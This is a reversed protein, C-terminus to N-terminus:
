PHSAWAHVESSTVDLHPVIGYKEGSKRLIPLMLLTLLFTGVVNIAITTEMNAKKSWSLSGGLLAVGANELLADLRDLKEARKAFAKVSDFDEMDLQWVECVGLRHTTKEIDELAEQGKQISRCALIVKSAGPRTIHRAAELGLGVNSGTVIVTQDEFSKTPYPLRVFLQSKIFGVITTTTYTRISHSHYRQQEFGLM